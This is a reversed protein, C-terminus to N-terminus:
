MLERIYSLCEECVCKGKYNINGFENGCFICTNLPIQSPYWILEDKEILGTQM